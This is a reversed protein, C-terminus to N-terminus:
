PKLLKRHAEILNFLQMGIFQSGLENREFNPFNQTTKHIVISFALARKYVDLDKFNLCCRERICKM